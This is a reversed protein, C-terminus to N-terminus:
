ATSIARTLNHRRITSSAERDRTDSRDHRHHRWSRRGRLHRVQHRSAHGPDHPGNAPRRRAIGKAVSGRSSDDERRVSTHGVWAKVSALEAKLKEPDPTSNNGVATDNVDLRLQPRPGEPRRDPTTEAFYYGTLETGDLGFKACDSVFDALTLKPPEDKAGLLLDRYSYAALSLKLKPKGTRTVPDIARAVPACLAGAACAALWDRRSIDAVATDERLRAPACLM